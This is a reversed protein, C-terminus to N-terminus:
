HNQIGISLVIGSATYTDGTADRYAAAVYLDDAGTAGEVVCGINDIQAVQSGIFDDYDSSLIHVACQRSAADADSISIASNETGFTVDDKFFYVDIDRGNDDKDVLTVSMITGRGGNERLAATLTQTAALVDHQAYASTDLTLTTTFWDMAYGVEMAHTEGAAITLVDVDGTVEQTSGSEDVDRVYVSDSRELVIDDVRFDTLTDSTNDLTVYLMWWTISSWDAGVGVEGDVAGLAHRVHTWDGDNLDDDATEFYWYNSSDTGLALRISDIISQEADTIYVWYDVFSHRAWDTADVAAITRSITAYAQTTGSKQFEISNTGRGRHATDANIGSVDTSGGVGTVTEAQDIDLLLQKVAVSGNPGVEWVDGDADEPLTSLAKGGDDVSVTGTIIDSVEVDALVEAENAIASGIVTVTGASYALPTRVQNFVGVAAVFGGDSTTETIAAGGALNTVTLSYWNTGDITYEFGVTDGSIGEVSFSMAAYGRSTFATGDGSATAAGHFTHSRAYLAQTSAPVPILAPVSQTFAIWAVALLIAVLLLPTALRGIIELNKKM